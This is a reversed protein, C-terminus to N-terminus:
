GMYELLAEEMQKKKCVIDYTCSGKGDLLSFRVLGGKNKKDQLTLKLIPKLDKERITVKGYTSFIFEEIERYLSEDIMKLKLSLYAECVMGVAVAEGHLLRQKPNSLFHTEVAHGLTHGFNLIKRLGKETPDEAVVKKKIEVSHAILEAFDQEEFDKHRIEEWKEADQILCHKVIEAFGSRLESKPLTKLFDADILVAQPQQFVGIHNKFGKFDIGLKGGVSADVQALLTTPIQIFDIGRKYTAACFGGLDGIVGGGLNVILSHRDFEAETMKQWVHECTKLNKEEEGHKIRILSHKPLLAKIKPYCHKKTNKDVVVGIKSYEKEKLFSSLLDAIAGIEVAM